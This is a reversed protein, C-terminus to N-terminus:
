IVANHNSISKKVEAKLKKFSWARYEYFCNKSKDYVWIYNRNSMNFISTRNGTSCFLEYQQNKSELKKNLFIGGKVVKLISDYDNNNTAQMIFNTEILSIMQELTVTITEIKKGTIKNVLKDSLSM